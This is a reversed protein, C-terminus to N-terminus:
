RMIGNHDALSRRSKSKGNNESGSKEIREFLESKRIGKFEGKSKKHAVINGTSLEIKVWRNTRPNLVQVYQEGALKICRDEFRKFKQGLVLLSNSRKIGSLKNFKDILNNAKEELIDLDTM